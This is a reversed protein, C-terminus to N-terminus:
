YEAGPVYWNVSSTPAMPGGGVHADISTLPRAVTTTPGPHHVGARSVTPREPILLPEPGDCHSAGPFRFRQRTGRAVRPRPEKSWTEAAFLGGSGPRDHIPHDSRASRGERPIFSRAERESM